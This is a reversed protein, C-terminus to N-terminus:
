SRQVSPAAALTLAGAQMKEIDATLWERTSQCHHAVLLGWLKQDATSQGTTNQGTQGTVIPVVLNARVKIKQLFDRHCPAIDATSIDAIARVRGELYMQAYDGNFCEDPGTSGLISFAKNSLSEFTVRGEWQQYFHYLVVRNVQLFALLEDTTNQVIKDLQMKRHLRKVISEIETVESQDRKDFSKPDFAASM